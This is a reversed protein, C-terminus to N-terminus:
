DAKIGAARVIKTWRELDAAILRSLDDPTGPTPNL